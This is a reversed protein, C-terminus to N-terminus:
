PFLPFDRLFKLAVLVLLWFLCATCLGSKCPNWASVAINEGLVTDARSISDNSAVTATNQMCVM